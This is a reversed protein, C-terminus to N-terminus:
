LNREEDDEAAATELILQSGGVSEITDGDTTTSSEDLISSSSNSPEITKEPVELFRSELYKQVTFRNKENSLDKNRVLNPLKECIKIWNEPLAWAFPSNSYELLEKIDYNHRKCSEVLSSRLNNVKQTRAIGNQENVDTKTGGIPIEKGNEDVIFVEDDEYIEQKADADAVTDTIRVSKKVAEELQKGPSLKKDLAIGSDDRSMRNGIVSTPPFSDQHMVHHQYAMTQAAHQNYADDVYDGVSQLFEASSFYDDLVLKATRILEFNDGTIKISHQGVNVTYKYEGLSADDTSYSQQLAGPARGGFNHNNNTRFKGSTSYLDASPMFMDHQMPMSQPASANQMMNGNGSVVSMGDDQSDLRVPSANRRITDEILSKAYNIKEESPGTIQVLREKAGPNVKQFSIITESLEEIMHVRRGKIGMVKGSDANRIVIEDKSYNKGPIKTPKTFKGSNRILEGPALAPATGSQMSSMSGIQLPPSTSLMMPETQVQLGDPEVKFQYYSNIDSSVQWHKARLEILELLKLRTMITLREDLSANRLVVFTRDLTDKAVEELRPGHICLNAKLINLNQINISGNVLTPAVSEILTILDDISGQTEYHQPQNKAAINGVPAGQTSNLPRPTELNKGLRRYQSM